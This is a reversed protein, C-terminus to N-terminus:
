FLPLSFRRSRCSPLRHTRPFIRWVGTPTRLPTFSKGAANWRWPCPQSRNRRGCRGCAAAAFYVQLWEYSNEGVIAIHKGSLGKRIFCNELIRIDSVLECYSRTQKEGKKTYWTVAPDNGYKEIVSLFQKFNGCYDAAQETFTGM